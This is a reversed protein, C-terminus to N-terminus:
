MGFEQTNKTIHILASLVRATAHMSVALCATSNYFCLLKNDNGVTHVEVTGAFELNMLSLAAYNHTMRFVDGELRKFAACLM